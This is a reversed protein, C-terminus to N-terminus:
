FATVPASPNLAPAVPVAATVDVQQGGVTLTPAPTANSAAQELEMARQALRANVNESVDRSATQIV